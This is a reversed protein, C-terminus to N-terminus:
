FRWVASLDLGIQQPTLVFGRVNAQGCLLSQTPPEIGGSLRMASSLRYELRVGLQSWLGANQQQQVLPCLGADGSLFLKDSLQVGGGIRTNQLIQQTPDVATNAALGRDLGGTQIQVYDLYGLSAIRDALASSLSTLLVNAATSVAGASQTPDGIGFAPAGTILYSILDSQSLAANDASEFGITPEELTGRIRVRIRKDQQAISSNFKRVTHVAAIDLGPNFSPDNPSFVIKGEEVDFTRQVVDAINLRYTGRNVLLTGDLSLQAASTDNGRRVVRRRDVNIAGGLNINAEASRLWVDSGMRVRVDRVALNATLQSPRSPLLRDGAFLTTDVVRRFDPDDASVLQKSRGLDPIILTGRVVELDGALTAGDYPGRLALSGSVDLDAVRPKAFANFRDMTFRLDFEPNEITRFRVVGGGDLRGVREIGLDAGPTASRAVSRAQLRDLSMSDGRFQALLEVERLSVRGLAPIEGSGGTLSLPGIVQPADWTGALDIGVNLVGRARRVATTFAEVASADVDRAQLRGELPAGSIRRNTRPELALDLPLLLNARAQVTATDRLTVEADLLRNRYVGDSELRYINQGVAGANAIGAKWRMTPEARTGSAQWSANVVGRIGLDSGALRNVTTMAVQQMQVQLNISGTDRFTGSFQVRAAEPGALELSDVSITTGVVRATAPRSLRWAEDVLLLVGQSLAVSTTDGRQDVRANARLAPGSAAEAGVTVDIQNTDASVADAKAQLFSLVGAQVTDLTVGINVWPATALDRVSGRANLRRARLGNRVLGDGTLTFRVGLSDLNGGLRADLSLSGALSDAQGPANSLYNRLGGLSDVYVGVQLSDHRTPGLGIGGKATVTAANTEIRTSDAYLVSDRFTLISQGAFLRVTDIMGRGLTLNVRGVLTPVLTDGMVRGIATGTLRTNPLREDATLTRVNLSDFTWAGDFGLQKDISDSYVDAVGRFTFAGQPGAFQANVGLSDSTGVLTLTGPMPVHVPISPYSKALMGFSMPLATLAVDFRTNADEITMRGRGTLRTPTGEGDIHELDADHFRVDYWLSDLRARGRVIGGIEPFAPNVYRITRIDVREADLDFGRFVADAPTTIDLMGRGRARSIAGPVHRDRYTLDMADIVFRNVPGGPGKVRGTLTGQFDYPFAGGRFVRLLDFDVPMAELDVDRVHLVETGTGFTMRGRLRSKVSTVDLETLEYLMRREEAPDNHIWVKTKGCGTRPLTPYIWGYDTMCATDGVIRIDWRQPRGGGWSVRGSASGSSAALKLEPLNVWVTDDIKRVMGRANRVYFAPETEVLRAAELAFTQGASDPHAIVSHGLRLEANRWQSVKDWTGSGDPRLEHERQAVRLLSDRASVPANPDPNWPQILILTADHLRATDVEVYDGFGRTPSVPTRRRSPPFIRKWNWGGGRYEHVRIVPRTVELFRVLLRRDIIDRVDYRVHVPGTAIFLSDDRDRIEVSDITLDGLVTGRIAGLHLRGRVAGKTQTLVLQRVRELGWETSTFVYAGAVVLLGVVALAAAAVYLVLQRRRM